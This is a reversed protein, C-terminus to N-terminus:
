PARPDRWLRRAARSADRAGRNQAQVEQIQPDPLHVELLNTKIDFYLRYWRVDNFNDQLQLYVEYLESLEHLLGALEADEPPVAQHRPVTRALTRFM